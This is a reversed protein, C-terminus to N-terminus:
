IYGAAQRGTRNWPLTGTSRWRRAARTAALLRSQSPGLADPRLRRARRGADPLAPHHPTSLRARPQFDADFVAVFDGTAFPLAHALAGAKYGARNTRRVATIDCGQSRWYAVSRDVVAVTDDSSDDLVQIQLRDRPYDLTACAEILREAVHRENYIPLQVTVSPWVNPMPPAAAPAVRRMQWVLWIAHLSYIALGLACLGYLVQLVFVVLELM